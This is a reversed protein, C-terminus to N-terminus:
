HIFLDIIDLVTVLSSEIPVASIITCIDNLIRQMSNSDRVQCWIQLTHQFLIAVVKILVNNWFTNILFLLISLTISSIQVDILKFAFHYESSVTWVRFVSKVYKCNIM